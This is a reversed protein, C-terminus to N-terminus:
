DFLWKSSEPTFGEWIGTGQAINVGAGDMNLRVDLRSLTMESCEKREDVGEWCDTRRALLSGKGIERYRIDILLVVGTLLEHFFYRQDLVIKQKEIEKGLRSKIRTKDTHRQFIVHPLNAIDSVKSIDKINSLLSRRYFCLPYWRLNTNRRLRMTSYYHDFM